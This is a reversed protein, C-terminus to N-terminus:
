NEREVKQWFAQIEDICEQPAEVMGMHGVNELILLYSHQPLRTQEVADEPSVAKDKKGIIFLVPYTAEELVRRRDPRDIMAQMGAVLAAPPLQSYHIIHEAIVDPRERSFDESFLNKTFNQMFAEPGNKEIFVINKKRIEKKEESDAYATSHFLGLGAILEPYKEALALTVYGGMSHGIVICKTIGQNQLDKHVAEAYADITTLDSRSAYSPTILNTNPWFAAKINDWVKSDEGYGHLLVLPLIM